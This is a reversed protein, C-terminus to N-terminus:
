LLIGGFYRHYRARYRIPQDTYHVFAKFDMLRGDESPIGSLFVIVEMGGWTLPKELDHGWLIADPIDGYVNYNAEIQYASRMFILFPVYTVALGWFASVM